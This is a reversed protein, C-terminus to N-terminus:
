FGALREKTDDINEFELAFEADLAADDAESDAHEVQLFDTPTSFLASM